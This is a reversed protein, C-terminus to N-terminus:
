TRYVTKTLFTIDMQAKLQELKNSVAENVALLRENEVKMYMSANFYNDTQNVSFGDFGALYLNKVGVTRMLNICMLGANDTILSDENTYSLYDVVAVHATDEHSINSTIVVTEVKDAVEKMNTFRKINSVFTMDARCFEPIFNVSIVYANNEQVWRNLMEAESEASKGPAILLVPRNDLKEHIMERTAADDVRNNMYTLYLDAIYAKDFLSRKEPAMGSLIKHIDQVHLTQKDLLFTAYNPHCGSVASIYYAAEYGWAYQLSLPRIYEDIIELIQINDYRLGFCANIYQTVLETNLNGAGRGMGYVSADVILERASNLQMLEQANAFSLQLNNHSHFGVVISKDLNHDVLYYMRLLDNKYMTGLTDVMYFAYPHLQNIRQILDLLADDTYTMTGVPQMFLKYGKRIIQAGQVFAEDIEHEHFTLRIGDVSTGDCEELEEMSLKGYQIMAVYMLNPNKKGIVEKIASVSGFLSRDPDFAGSRLFGCEIVDVSADSLKQIIGRITQKGFRFDNVYGGDRLTCDLLKIRKDM